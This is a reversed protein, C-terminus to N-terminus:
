QAARAAIALQLHERELSRQNTRSAVKAIGEHSRAILEPAGIQEARELCEEYAAMAVSADNNLLAYGAEMDRRTWEGFLVFFQTKRDLEDFPMPMPVQPSVPWRLQYRGDGPRYYDDIILLKSGGEVAGLGELEKMVEDAQGTLVLASVDRQMQDAGGPYEGTRAFERIAERIRQSAAADM